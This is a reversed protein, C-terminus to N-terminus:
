RRASINILVPLHTWIAKVHCGSSIILTYAFPHVAPWANPLEVVIWTTSFSNRILPLPSPHPVASILISSRRIQYLSSVCSWIHYIKSCPSCHYVDYFGHCWNFQINPNLWHLYPQANFWWHMVALSKIDLNTGVTADVFKIINRAVEVMPRKGSVYFQPNRMRRSHRSRKWRWRSWLFGSTLSGPMCWPVHTVCTDHHMDPDSIRPPPSFTGRM